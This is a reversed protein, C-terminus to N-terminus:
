CFYGTAPNPTVQLHFANVVPPTVEVHVADIATAGNNDTVTLQFVYSGPQLGTVTTIANAATALTATSPGSVQTWQYSAITGDDDTGSGRLTIV